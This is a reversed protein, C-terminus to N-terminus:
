SFILDFLDPFKHDNFNSVSDNEEDDGDKLVRDVIEYINPIEHYDEMFSILKASLVEVIKDIEKSREEKEAKLKNAKEAERKEEAEKACKMECATRESISNYSKGCYAYVYNM